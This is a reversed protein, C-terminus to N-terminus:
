PQNSQILTQVAALFEGIQKESLGVNTPLNGVYLRRDKRTAQGLSAQQQILKEGDVNEVWQFGDWFRAPKGADIRSQMAAAKRKAHSAPSLSRSRSRGRRGSGYRREDYCRDDPRRREEGYGRDHGRDSSGAGFHGHDDDCRRNPDAACVLEVCHAACPPMLQADRAGFPPSPAALRVTTVDDRSSIRQTTMRLVRRGLPCSRRAPHIKVLRLANLLRLTSPHLAPPLATLLHVATLLRLAGTLLRRASLLRRAGMLRLATPLHLAGSPLRLASLRLCLVATMTSVVTETTAAITIAATATAAVIATAAVNTMAATTIAVAITTTAASITDATMMAAVIIMAAVITMSAVTTTNACRPAIPHDLLMLHCLGLGVQCSDTM